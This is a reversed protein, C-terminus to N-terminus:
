YYDALCKVLETRDSTQGKRVIVSSSGDSSSSSADDELEDNDSDSEAQRERGKSKGGKEAILKPRAAAARLAAHSAGAMAGSKGM